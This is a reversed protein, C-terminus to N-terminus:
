YGWIRQIEEQEMQKRIAENEKQIRDQVSLSTIEMVPIEITRKYKDFSEPTDLRLFTFRNNTQNVSYLASMGLAITYDDHKGSQHDIRYGYLTLKLQVSLLERSLEEHPFIRILNNHFLYYLNQTLKQINGTTFSFEEVPVGKAKLAQATSVMQWPDLIVKRIRFNECASVIYEQIDAIVVKNEKSGQWARIDDLEVMNSEKDLHTIAAVTRDNSLGLDVALYYNTSPHGMLKPRLIPDIAQRVEEETLFTSEKSTWTCQHMRAYESPPLIRKQNELYEPTIWSALNETSHFFYM